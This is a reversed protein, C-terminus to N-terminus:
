PSWHDPGPSLRHPELESPSAQHWFSAGSSDGKPKHGSSPVAPLERVSVGLGLGNCSDPSAAPAARPLPFPACTGDAPQFPRSPQAPSAHQLSATSCPALHSRFSSSALPAEKPTSPCRPPSLSSSTLVSRAGWVRPKPHRHLAEWGSSDTLGLMAGTRSSRLLEAEPNKWIYSGASPTAWGSPNKYGPAEGLNGKM